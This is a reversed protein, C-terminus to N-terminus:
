WPCRCPGWSGLSAVAQPAPSFSPSQERVWCRCLSPRELRRLELPCAGDHGTPPPHPCPHLRLCASLPAPGPRQGSQAWGGPPYRCSSWLGCHRPLLLPLVIGVCGQAQPCAQPLCGQPLLRCPLPRKDTRTGPSLPQLAARSLPVTLPGLLTPGCPPELRELPGQSETAAGCGPRPTDGHTMAMIGLSLGQLSLRLRLKQGPVSVSLGVRRLGHNDPKLLTHHGCVPGPATVSPGLAAWFCSAVPPARVVWLLQTICESGGLTDGPLGTETGSLLHPLLCTGWPCLPLAKRPGFPCEAAVGPQCCGLGPSGPVAMSSLPSM